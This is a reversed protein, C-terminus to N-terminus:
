LVDNGHRLLKAAIEAALHRIIIVRQDTQRANSALRRVHHKRDTESLLPDGHIGMHETDGVADTQHM